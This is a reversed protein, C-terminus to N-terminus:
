KAPAATTIAAHLRGLNWAAGVSGAVSDSDMLYSFFTAEVGAKALATTVLGRMTSANVVDVRSLGIKM